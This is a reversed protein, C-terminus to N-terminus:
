HLKMLEEEDYDGEEEYENGILFTTHIIILYIVWKM